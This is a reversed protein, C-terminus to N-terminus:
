RPPSFEFSGKYVIRAISGVKPGSEIQPLDVTTEGGRTRVTWLGFRGSKQAHVTTAAAAGTGCGLTEGVGREWIRMSIEGLHHCTTWLVSTRDPFLPDSEILPSLRLFDADSPLKPLAVVFHTSGTTLATGVVGHIERDIVPVPASVPVLSPEFSCPPMQAVVSEGVQELVIDSGGSEVHVSGVAWGMDFVFQACCRLGNGCFDPTGDPNFFDVSIQGGDRSMVLLGDSGVGFKRDCATIAFDQRDADALSDAMVLVFDNGVTELKWFPIKM